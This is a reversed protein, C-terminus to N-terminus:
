GLHVPVVFITAEFTINQSSSQFAVSWGPPAIAIPFGPFFQTPPSNYASFGGVHNGICQNVSYSWPTASIQGTRPDVPTTVISAGDSYATGPNGKVTEIFVYTNNNVFLTCGYCYLTDSASGNLVGVYSNQGAVANQIVHFGQTRAALWNPLSHALVGKPKFLGLM